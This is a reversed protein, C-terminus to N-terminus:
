NKQKQMFSPTKNKQKKKPRGKCVWNAQLFHWEKTHTLWAPINHVKDTNFHWHFYKSKNKWLQASSTVDCPYYHNRCLCICLCACYYLFSVWRRRKKWSLHNMLQPIAHSSHASWETSLQRDRWSWQTFLQLSPPFISQQIFSHFSLLIFSNSHIFSVPGIIYSNPITLLWTQKNCPLARYYPTPWASVFSSWLLWPLSSLVGM